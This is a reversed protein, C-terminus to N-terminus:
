KEGQIFLIMGQYKVGEKKIEEVESTTLILKLFNDKITLKM